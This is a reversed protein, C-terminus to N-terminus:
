IVLIDESGVGGDRASEWATNEERASANRPDRGVNTDSAFAKASSTFPWWVAVSVSRSSVCASRLSVCASRSEAAVCAALAAVEADSAAAEAALAAVDAALTDM